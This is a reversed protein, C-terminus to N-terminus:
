KALRDRVVAYAVPAKGDDPLFLARHDAPLVVFDSVNKLEASKITVPGDSDGSRQRHEDAFKQM